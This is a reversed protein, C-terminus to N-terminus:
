VPTHRSDLNDFICITVKHCQSAHLSTDSHLKKTDHVHVKHFIDGHSGFIFRCIDLIYCYGEFTNGLHGKLLSYYSIKGYQIKFHTEWPNMANKLLSRYAWEVYKSIYFSDKLWKIEFCFFPPNITYVWRKEPWGSKEFWFFFGLKCFWKEGVQFFPPNILFGGKKEPWGSKKFWFSFGLKCFWKEGVQFLIRTQLVM